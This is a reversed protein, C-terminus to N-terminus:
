AFRHNIKNQCVDDPIHCGSLEAIVQSRTKRAAPAPMTDSDHREGNARAREFGASAGARSQTGPAALAMLTQQSIQQANKQVPPQGALVSGSIATFALATAFHSIAM